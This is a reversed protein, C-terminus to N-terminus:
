FSRRGFVPDDAIARGVASTHAADILAAFREATAPPGSVAVLGRDLAAYVDLRGGLLAALATDAVVVVADGPEPRRRHDEVVVGGPGPAYRSWTHSQSQLVSFAEVDGLVSSRAALKPLYGNIVSLRTLARRRGSPVPPLMDAEEAARTAVAVPLALGHGVTLGIPNSHFFCAAAPSAALALVGGVLAALARATCAARRSSCEGHDVVLSRATDITAGVLTGRVVSVVGKRQSM